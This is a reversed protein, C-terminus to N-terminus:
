LESKKLIKELRELKIGDKNQEAKVQNIRKIEEEKRELTEDRKRRVEQSMRYRLGNTPINAGLELLKDLTEYYKREQSHQLATLGANDKVEMDMGQNVLYEVIDVCNRIAAHILVNYGKRDILNFNAGREILNQVCLLERSVTCLMLATEGLHNTEDLNIEKNNSLLKIVESKGRIAAIMLPTIGEFPKFHAGAEIM